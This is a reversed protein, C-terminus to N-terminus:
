CPRPLVIKKTNKVFTDLATLLNGPKAMERTLDQGAQFEKQSMSEALTTRNETAPNMNSPNISASISYLAYAVVNSSSVGNGNRYMQGLNNQADVNSQNAALRYWRLAKKYNQPVGEGKHYILGISFQARANGKKASLSFWKLSERYDQPVGNGKYYMVGINYQSKDDGKIALPKFTQLATAFDGKNIAALGKDYDPEASAIGPMLTFFLSVLVVIVRLQKKM